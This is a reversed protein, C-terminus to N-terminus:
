SWQILMVFGLAIILSGTIKMILTRVDLEEKIARPAVMSVIVVIVFVFLHELGKMANIISVNGAFFAANLLLFGSAGIVKNSIFWSTADKPAHKTTSRIEKWVQPIFLLLLAALFSGIRTWFFGPIFETVKYVEDALFFASAFLFSSIITHGVLASTVCRRKGTVKFALLMGGFIFASIAILEAETVFEGVVFYGLVLSFLPVLAGILPIVRSADCVRLSSYLFYLGTLFLAGSSLAMIMTVFDLVAFGFPILIVVGISLIGTYFAYALPNPIKKELLFKDISAATASFFYAAIALPIWLM